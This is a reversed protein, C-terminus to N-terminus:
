TRRKGSDGHNRYSIELLSPAVRRSCILPPTVKSAVNGNISPYVDEENDGVRGYVKMTYSQAVRACLTVILGRAPPQVRVLLRIINRIHLLRSDFGHGVLGTELYM